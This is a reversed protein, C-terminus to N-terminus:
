KSKDVNKVHIFKLFIEFFGCLFFYYLLLKSSICFRILRTVKRVQSDPLGFVWGPRGLFIIRTLSNLIHSSILGLVSTTYHLFAIFTISEMPAVGDDFIILITICVLNAITHAIQVWVTDITACDFPM